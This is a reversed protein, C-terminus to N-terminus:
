LSVHSSNPHNLQPIVPVSTCHLRLVVDDPLCVLFVLTVSAGAAHTRALRALRFGPRRRLGTALVLFSFGPRIGAGALPCACRGGAGRKDPPPRAPPLSPLSDFKIAGLDRWRAGIRLSVRRNSSCQGAHVQVASGGNAEDPRRRGGPRWAKVSPCFRDARPRL